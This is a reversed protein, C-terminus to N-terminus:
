PSISCTGTRATTPPLRLGSRPPRSVHERSLACNRPWGGRAGGGRDGALTGRLRADARSGRARGALMAAERRGNSGLSGDLSREVDPDGQSM